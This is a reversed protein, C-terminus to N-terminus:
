PFTIGSPHNWLRTELLRSRVKSWRQVPLQLGGRQNGLVVVMTIVRTLMYFGMSKLLLFFIYNLRNIAAKVGLVKGYKTGLM